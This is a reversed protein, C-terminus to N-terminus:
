RAREEFDYLLQFDVKHKQYTDRFIQLMDMYQNHRNPDPTTEQGYDVWAQAAEYPDFLHLGGGALLAAGYAAQEKVALPRVPLGFVDAIIQQWLRSRAGGGAMIVREARAGTIELVSFADYCALAVGELVARILEGRGHAATLGIFVGRAKPDMHPTREGMLYPLFILGRAGAPVEEAMLTMGAYSDAAKIEFIQDRLWQLSLGASLIAAMQYWGPRGSHPDHVSCFTHIRGLEDTRPEMVPLILQGGTSITLLLTSDDSIGAGLLGAAADAAGAIVPVGAPLALENAVEGKLNGAIDGSNILEPLFDRDIELAQLLEESWSRRKIDLFLTGSGDSPESHLQGTFRWRLYDKPTLILTTQRWLEPRQQRLWRVTAAQFGTSALSGTLSILWERGVLDHIEQVQQWSRRDPWIIAPSLLQKNEDLLVTGHMQGAFSIGGLSLNTSGFASVAAKVASVTASWWEDPSQEAWDSHPRQIQYDAKGQGLIQGSDSVIIARVSSTGLDIGLLQV